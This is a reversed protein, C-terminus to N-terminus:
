GAVNLHGHLLKRETEAPLAQHVVWSPLITLRNKVTRLHHICEPSFRDGEEVKVSLAEYTWELASGEADNLPLFWNLTRRNTLHDHHWFMGVGPPYMSLNVELWSIGKDWVMRWAHDHWGRIRNRVEDSEILARLRQNVEPLDIEAWARQGHAVDEMESNILDYQGDEIAHLIEVPLFDYVLLAGAFTELKMTREFISSGPGQSTGRSCDEGPRSGQTSATEIAGTPDLERSEGPSPRNNPPPVPRM